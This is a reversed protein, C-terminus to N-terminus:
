PFGVRDLRDATEDLGGEPVHTLVLVVFHVTLLGHAQRLLGCFWNVTRQSRRRPEQYPPAVFAAVAEIFAM